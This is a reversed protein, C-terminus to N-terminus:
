GPLNILGALTARHKGPTGLALEDSKARKLYLHAPHEWTMGIGGHLQIAEEAAHVAITSCRSKAVAVAIPIDESGTALADAAYRAAARANVVEVYLNALRHKLAQFSGVQRGFQYREKLYRVTETLCWEAIGLQESALLGAGTRLAHELAAPAHEPGAVLRAPTDTLVVDAIRRTLDLSVIETVSAGTASSNAAYLGPGDPGVAPVVLLEAVSADVVTGVRGTLTGNASVEVADPFEAGPQATLPVTLTGILDGAALRSLLEAVVEQGTDAGLLASTALVVSGLFPVPAVSRGLEELVLAVERASAGHGGLEEPVALGAAGLDAALTRWLKLDCPETSETRALVAGPEAGTTLLARVSSRLDEEVESYLLDPTTMM